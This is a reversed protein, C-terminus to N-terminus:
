ITTKFRPAGMAGVLGIEFREASARAFIVRQGKTEVNIFCLSAGNSRFSSLRKRGM